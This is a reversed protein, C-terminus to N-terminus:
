SRASSGTARPNGAAAIPRCRALSRRDQDGARARGLVDAELVHLAPPRRPGGLHGRRGPGLERVGLRRDPRPRGLRRLPHARRPPQLSVRLRDARRLHRAAAPRRSRQRDAGSCLRPLGGPTRPAGGRPRRPRRDRVHDSAPRAALGEARPVARDALGHLGRGRRHLRAASARLALVGLRPDVHLPLGLEARRRDAGPPEDDASRRDGRDAQVDDAEADAGVPAADRALTGPLPVALALAALVRGHARVGRPERGGSYARPIYTEPVQELVFTASEGPRLTFECAVGTGTFELPLATQLALCLSSSKFVAGKEHFVVEHEDRAYNFRPEVELLFRMEGRVGLIRRVLRHRHAAQGSHIPMFDQVEAVGTATLFRTILVNTDPLYLQKPTWQGTAPAIRCYGGRKKDLIAGFVSPSDFRPCCYWDITGDTDVLAVTHLDGIIGHEAIPLYDALGRVTRM